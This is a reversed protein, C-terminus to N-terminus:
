KMRLPIAKGSSQPTIETRDDPIVTVSNFGGEEVQVDEIV